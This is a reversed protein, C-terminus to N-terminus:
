TQEASDDRTRPSHKAVAVMESRRRRHQSLELSRDGEGGDPSRPPTREQGRPALGVIPKEYAQAIELEEQIWQRYNVYMGSIIVFCNVPAIQRRLASRLQADTQTGM